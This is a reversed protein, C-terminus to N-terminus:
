KGLGYEDMIRRLDKLAKQSFTINQSPTVIKLMEEQITLRCYRVYDQPRPAKEVQVDTPKIEKIIAM